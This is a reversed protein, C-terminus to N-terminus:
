EAVSSKEESGAAAEWLFNVRLKMDWAKDQDRHPFPDASPLQEILIPLHGPLTSGHFYYIHGQFNSDLASEASYDGSSVSLYLLRCTCFCM